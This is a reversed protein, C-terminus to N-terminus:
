EWSGCVVLIELACTEQPHNQKAYEEVDEGLRLWEQWGIDEFWYRVRQGKVAAYQSGCKGTPDKFFKVM